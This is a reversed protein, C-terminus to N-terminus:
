GLKKIGALEKLRNIVKNSVRGGSKDKLPAKGPDKIPTGTNPTGGM